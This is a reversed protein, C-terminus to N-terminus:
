SILKRLSKTYEDLVSMSKLYQEMQMEMATGDRYFPMDSVKMGLNKASREADDLLNKMDKADEQMERQIKAVDDVEAMLQKIAGQLKSFGKDYQNMLKQANNSVSDIMGKLTSLEIRHTELELRQDKQSMRHYVAKVNNNKM